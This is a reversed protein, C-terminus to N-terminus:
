QIPKPMGYVSLDENDEINDDWEIDDEMMSLASLEKNTDSTIESGYGLLELRQVELEAKNLSDKHIRELEIGGILINNNTLYDRRHNTAEKAKKVQELQAKRLHRYREKEEQSADIDTESTLGKLKVDCVFRMNDEKCEAGNPLDYLAIQKLDSPDYKVYFTTTDIHQNNFIALDEANLEPIYRYKEKGVEITLGRYTYQYPQIRKGSKRWIAFCEFQEFLSLPKGKEISKTYLENPTVGKSNPTNNYLEIATRLQKIYEEKTPYSKYYKKLKDPNQKSNLNKATINGGSKNVFYTLIQENFVGQWSEISKSRGMGTATPYFRAGLNKMLEKTEASQMASGKDSRVELPKVGHLTCAMKVAEFVSNSTESYCISHGVIKWSKSDMVKMVYLKDVTKRIPDYYWLHEPTGDLQWVLNRGSAKRRNITMVQNLKFDKEGHRELHWQGQTESLVKAVSRYTVNKCHHWGKEKAIALFQQHVQKKTFKRGHRDAYLEIILLRETKGLKVSNSNGFKASIIASTGEKLYKKFTDTLRRQNKPLKISNEKIYKAILEWFSVVNEVGFQQAKEDTLPHLRALFGLVTCKQEYILRKRAELHTGSPLILEMLFDKDQEPCFSMGKKLLELQTYTRVCGGYYANIKQKWDWKLSKFEILKGYEESEHTTIRKEQIAKYFGRESVIDINLIESVSIFIYNNIIIPM